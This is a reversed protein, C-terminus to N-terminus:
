QWSLETSRSHKIQFKASIEFSSPFGLYGKINDSKLRVSDKDRPFM